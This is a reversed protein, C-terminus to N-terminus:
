KLQELYQIDIFLLTHSHTPPHIPPPELFSRFHGFSHIDKEITFSYFLRM